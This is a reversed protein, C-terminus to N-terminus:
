GSVSLRYLEFPKEGADALHLALEFRPDHERGLYLADLAPRGAPMMLYDVAFQHALRLTDERSAHPTVLSSYGLHSMIYPDQTMMIYQGDDNTDPLNELELVLKTVSDYYTDALTANQKVLAYSNWILWATSIVMLIRLAYRNPVFRTLALTGFPILLPLISLFGKEFSGSKSLVPMFIPYVVLMVATWALAFAACIVSASLGRRLLLIVGVPAFLLLPFDLSVAVQKPAAAFEFVRQSVLESLTARELLSELSVSFGYAYTDIPELMFPMRGIAASGLIGLQHYNRLLWASVTLAFLAIVIMMGRLISRDSKHLTVALSLMVLVPVFVIADNRTLYALGFLLGSMAYSANRRSIIASNWQVVASPVFIMSLITTDTRLSNLTIDPLVAAFLAAYLAATMNTSLQRAFHFVIVPVLTGAAVFLILSGHITEGGLLMGLAAAVGAAPMWHDIPHTIDTPMQSYHWVYDITFGNGNLLRRALNHYHIPDHLGPNHIMPLLSLRLFLAVAVAGLLYM